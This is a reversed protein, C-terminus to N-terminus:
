PKKGSVIDALKYLYVAFGSAVALQAGDRSVASATVPEAFTLRKILSCSKRDWVDIMGGSSNNDFAPDAVVVTGDLGYSVSELYPYETEISGLSTWSKTSLFTVGKLTGIAVEQSEGRFSAACNAECDFHHFVRHSKESIFNAGSRSTVVLMKGDPSFACDGCVGKVRSWRGNWGKCTSVECLHIFDQSIPIMSAALELDPTIACQSYFRYDDPKRAALVSQKDSNWVLACVSDIGIIARDDHSYFVQYPPRDYGHITAEPLDSHLNWIRIRGPM